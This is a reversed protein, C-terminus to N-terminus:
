GELAVIQGKSAADYIVGSIAALNEDDRLFELAEEKLSNKGLALQVQIIAKSKALAGKQELVDKLTKVALNAADADGSAGNAKSQGKVGGEKNGYFDTIVTNTRNYERGEAGTRKGAKKTGAEDIIQAFRFREGNLAELTLAEGAGLDSLRSEPFEAKLLSTIFVGFPTKVNIRVNGEKATVSKGDKAIVYRDAGGMFLHQTTDKEAGDVRVSPVAYIWESPTKGGPPVTTFTTGKYTVDVENWFGGTRLAESFGM